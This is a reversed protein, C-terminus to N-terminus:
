PWKTLSVESEGPDIKGSRMILDPIHSAGRVDEVSRVGSWRVSRVWRAGLGKGIFSPAGYREISSTNKDKM